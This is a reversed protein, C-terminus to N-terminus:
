KVVINVIRNPVVIVKIIDKGETHKIVNEEQLALKEVEEKDLDKAVMISSRLKGNVQIAITVENDITKEELYTPWSSFVLEEKNGLLENLEETIHPCIPNLLKLLTVYESSTINKSDTFLNVLKMMESIATNFKMNEIDDSVKKITKHVSNELEKSYQEDM